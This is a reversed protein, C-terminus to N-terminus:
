RTDYEDSHLDFKYTPKFKLPGESFEQLFFMKKKAMNLQSYSALATQHQLGLASAVAFLRVRVGAGKMGWPLFGQLCSGWRFLFFGPPSVCLM